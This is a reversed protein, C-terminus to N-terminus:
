RYRELYKDVETSETAVAREGEITGGIRAVMNQTLEESIEVARGVRQGFTRLAKILVDAPLGHKGAFKSAILLALERESVQGLAGGTVSAERMQQLANFAAYASIQDLKVKLVSAPSEPDVLALTGWRGTSKPNAILLAIAEDVMDTVADADALMTARASLLKPYQERATVLANGTAVEIAKLGAQKAAGPVVVAAEGSDPRGDAALVSGNTPEEPAGRIPTIVYNTVNGGDDTIPNIAEIEGTSSVLTGSGPGGASSPYFKVEGETDPKTAKMPDRLLRLAAVAEEDGDQHAQIMAADIAANQRATYATRAATQLSAAEAAVAERTTGATKLIEPAVDVTGPQFPIRSYIQQGDDTIGITAGAGPAQIQALQEEITQQAGLQATQLEGARKGSLQAGLAHVLPGLHGAATYGYPNPPPKYGRLMQALSLRRQEQSQKIRPDLIFSVM